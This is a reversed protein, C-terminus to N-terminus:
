VTILERLLNRCVETSEIYFRAQTTKFGVKISYASPPLIKFIDEDTWDDGLALIFDWPKL